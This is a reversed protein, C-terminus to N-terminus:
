HGMLKLDRNQLTELAVVKGKLERLYKMGLM